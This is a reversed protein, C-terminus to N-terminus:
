MPTEEADAVLNDWNLSSLFAGFHASVMMPCKTDVFSHVVCPAAADQRTSTSSVARTSSVRLSASLCVSVRVSPRAFPRVVRSNAAFVPQLEIM